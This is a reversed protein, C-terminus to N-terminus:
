DSSKSRRAAIAKRVRDWGEPHTGYVSLEWNKLYYDVSFGNASVVDLNAGKEILYLAADWRTSGILSVVAPAGSNQLADIDAGREVLWRLVEVDDTMGLPTNGMVVDRANVDVGHDLLLKVIEKSVDSKRLLMYNLPDKGTEAIKTQRPDAGAELMIRVPGATGRRDRAHILAFALLDNGAQDVGAPPPKGGLLEALRNTDGAVIAAAMSALVPDRFDGVSDYENEIRREKWANVLPTAVLVFLPWALVIVLVTIGITSQKRVAVYLLVGVIVVIVLVAGVVLVGLGRGAEPTSTRDTAARLLAYLAAVVTIGLLTWALPVLFRANM